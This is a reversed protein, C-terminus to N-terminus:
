IYPTAWLSCFYLSCKVLTLTFFSINAAFSQVHTITDLKIYNAVANRLNKEVGVVALITAGLKQLTEHLPSLPRMITILTIAIQAMFTDM